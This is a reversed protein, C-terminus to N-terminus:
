KRCSKSRMEQEKPLSHFLLMQKPKRVKSSAYNVYFSQQKTRWMTHELTRLFNSNNVKQYFTRSHVPTSHIRATLLFCPRRYTWWSVTGQHLRIEQRDATWTGRSSIRDCSDLWRWWAALLQQKEQVSQSTLIQYLKLRNECWGRWSLWTQRSLMEQFGTHTCHLFIESPSSIQKYSEQDFTQNYNQQWTKRLTPNPEQQMIPLIPDESDAKVLSRTLSKKKLM